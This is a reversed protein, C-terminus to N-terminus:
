FPLGDYNYQDVEGSKVVHTLWVRLFRMKDEPRTLPMVKGDPGDGSHRLTANNQSYHLTNILDATEVCAYLTKGGEKMMLKGIKGQDFAHTFNGQCNWDISVGHTDVANPFEYDLHDRWEPFDLWQSNYKEMVFEIAEPFSAIEPRDPDWIKRRAKKPYITTPEETVENHCEGKTNVTLGFGFLPM